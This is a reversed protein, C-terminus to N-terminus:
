PKASYWQNNYYWWEGATLKQDSTKEQNNYIFKLTVGVADELTYTYWNDGESTMSDGPWTNNTYKNDKSVCSWYFINAGGEETYYHVIIKDTIEEQKTWKAYLVIDGTTGKTIETIKNTFDADLYWGDFTYGTRTAPLLNITESESNYTKPNNTNNEGENLVYNISYNDSNDEINTTFAKIRNNTGNNSIDVWDNNDVKSFSQGPNTISTFSIWDGNTYTEDVASYLYQKNSSNQTVVVSFTTGKTLTVPTELPVTYYGVYPATEQMSAVLTGSDPKSLDTLDQYVSIEYTNNVNNTNYFSVADLTEKQKQSSFVNSASLSNCYESDTRNGCSGDYQYNNDYNDNREFDFFFVNSLSTDYYSLWFYGSNGYSSGWSNKILWAGPGNPTKSSNFNSVAYNDDWGVVSVCHNTSYTSNQYYAGTKSNYGSNDSAYYSITGAGNEMILQKITSKDNYNIIYANQMHALDNFSIATREEATKKAMDTEYSSANSYAALSEDAAGVWNAFNKVTFVSNGGLDLYTSRIATTSDGATNGLPDVQTHYFNYALHLESYDTAVQLGYKKIMSSEATNIAGFAWCTGYGGQNKVKSVYNLNVSNYSEPVYAGRVNPNTSEEVSPINVEVDNYGYNNDNTTPLTKAQANTTFMVSFLVLVCMLLNTKKRM